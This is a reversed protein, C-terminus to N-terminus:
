KNREGSRNPKETRYIQNTYGWVAKSGDSLTGNLLIGDFGSRGNKIDEYLNEIEVQREGGGFDRYWIVDGVQLEDFDLVGHVEWMPM